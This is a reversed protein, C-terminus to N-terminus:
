RRDTRFPVAPLGAKNFLNPEAHEDWAFRVAAPESVADSWVVVRDGDVRAEASVFKGDGGAITFFTLRDAPQTAPATTPHPVKLMLGGDVHDFTLWARGDRVEMSEFVPGSYEVDRGYTKALAVLALRHGVDWKNSPHIDKWTDVLDTVVAMGTNSVRTLVDSQAEWFEPLMQPSQHREPYRRSYSFPAIQVFYFPAAPEGWRQRWGDILAQMKDTYRPGDGNMCNSEGQYWLFGRLAYPILPEVMHDFDTGVPSGDLYLPRTTPANLTPFKEYADAPTWVEIRSGGWDSEILGIPVHLERHIEKGFFYGVASFERLPTGRCEHWGTTTVDPESLKKEVHFLHIDPFNPSAALEESAVDVVGTTPKRMNSTRSTAYEMNSQGSCFWVEGVLINSLRLTNHAGAIMMEAPKDSAQLADLTVRWAGKDDAAM